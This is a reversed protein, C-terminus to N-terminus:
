RKLASAMTKLASIRYRFALRRSGYAGVLGEVPRPGDAGHVSAAEPHATHHRTMRAVMEM